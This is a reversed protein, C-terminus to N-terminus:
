QNKPPLVEFVLVAAAPAGLAAIMAFKIGMSLVIEFTHFRLGNAVDVDVDAYNLNSICKKLHTKFVLPADM